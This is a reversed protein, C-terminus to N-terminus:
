EVEGSLQPTGDPQVFCYFKRGDANEQILRGNESYYIPHGLAKMEAIDDKVQQRSHQQIRLAEQLCDYPEETTTSDIETLSIPTPRNRTSMSNM